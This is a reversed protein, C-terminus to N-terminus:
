CADKTVFGLSVAIKQRMVEWEQKSRVFDANEKKLKEIRALLKEEKADLEALYTTNETLMATVRELMKKQNAVKEEVEALEKLADRHTDFSKKLGDRDRVLRKVDLTNLSLADMHDDAEKASQIRTTTIENKQRKNSDDKENNEKRTPSRERKKPSSPPSSSSSSCSTEEGSSSSSSSHDKRKEMGKVLADLSKPKVTSTNTRSGTTLDPFFNPMSAVTSNRGGLM